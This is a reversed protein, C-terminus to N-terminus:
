SFAFLISFRIEGTVYFHLIYFFANILRKKNTKKRVEMFVLLPLVNERKSFGFTHTGLYKQSLLTTQGVNEKQLICTYRIGM